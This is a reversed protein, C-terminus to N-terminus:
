SVIQCRVVTVIFQREESTSRTITLKIFSYSSDITTVKSATWSSENLQKAYTSCDVESNKKKVCSDELLHTTEVDLKTLFHFSKRLVHSYSVSVDILYKLKWKESIRSRIHRFMVTFTELHEQLEVNQTM